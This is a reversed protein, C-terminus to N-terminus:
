NSIIQCVEDIIEEMVESTLEEKEIVFEQIRTLFAEDNESLRGPVITAKVPNKKAISTQRFSIQIPFRTCM